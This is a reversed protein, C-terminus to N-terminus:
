EIEHKIRDFAIGFITFTVIFFFGSKLLSIGAYFLEPMSFFDYTLLFLTAFICFFFSYKLGVKMIKFINKDIKFISKIMFKFDKKM